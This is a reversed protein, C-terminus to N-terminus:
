IKLHKRREERAVRATRAVARRARLAALKEPAMRGKPAQEYFDHPLGNTPRAQYEEAQPSNQGTEGPSDVPGKTVSQDYHDSDTHPTSRPPSKPKQKTSKTREGAPSVSKKIEPQKASHLPTLAETTFAVEADLIYGQLGRKWGLQKIIQPNKSDIEIRNRVHQLAPGLHLPDFDPLTEQMGRVITKPHLLTQPNQALYVFLTWNPGTSDHKFRIIRGDIQVERTGENVRIKHPSEKEKDAIAPKEDLGGSSTYLLAHALMKSTVTDGPFVRVTRGDHTDSAQGARPLPNTDRGNIPLSRAEIVPATKPTQQGIRSASLPDSEPSRQAM